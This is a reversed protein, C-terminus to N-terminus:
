KVKKAWAALAAEYGNKNQELAAIDSKAQQKIKKLAADKMKHAMAQEDTAKELAVTLREIMAKQKEASEAFKTEVSQIALDEAAKAEEIQAELKAVIDAAQGSQAAMVAMPSKRRESVQLAKAVEDSMAQEFPTLNETWGMKDTLPEQAPFQSVNSAQPQAM